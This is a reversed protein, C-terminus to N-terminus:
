PMVLVPHDSYSVLAGAAFQTTNGKYSIPDRICPFYDVIYEPFQFAASMKKDVIRNFNLNLAAPGHLWYVVDCIAGHFNNIELFSTNINGSRNAGFGQTYVGNNYGDCVAGYQPHYYRRMVLHHWKGTTITGMSIGTVYGTGTGHLLVRHNDALSNDYMMWANTPGGANRFIHSQRATTPIAYM